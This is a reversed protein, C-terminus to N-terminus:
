FNNLFSCTVVLTTASGHIARLDHGTPLAASAVGGRRERKMPM